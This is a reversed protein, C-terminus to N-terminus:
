IKNAVNAIFHEAKVEKTCKGEKEESWEQCVLWNDDRKEAREIYRLQLHNKERSLIVLAPEYMTYNPMGSYHYFGVFNVPGNQLSGALVNAVEYKLLFVRDMCIAELGSESKPQEIYEVCPKDSREVSLPAGIFAIVEAYATSCFLITLLPTIAKM